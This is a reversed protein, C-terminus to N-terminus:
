LFALRKRVEYLSEANEIKKSLSLTKRDRYFHYDNPRIFQYLNTTSTLILLEIYLYNFIFERLSYTISLSKNAIAVFQILCTLTHSWLFLHLPVLRYCRYKTFYVDFLSVDNYM